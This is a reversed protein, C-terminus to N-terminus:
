YPEKNLDVFTKAKKAIEAVHKDYIILRLSDIYKDPRSDLSRPNPTLCYMKVIRLTTVSFVSSPFFKAYRYNM